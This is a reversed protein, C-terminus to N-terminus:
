GMKENQLELKKYSKKAKKYATRYDDSIVMNKNNTHCRRNRSSHDKYILKRIAKAVKGNM